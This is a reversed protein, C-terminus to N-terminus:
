SLKFSLYMELPLATGLFPLSKTWRKIDRFLEIILYYSYCYMGLECQAGITGRLIIKPIRLERIEM